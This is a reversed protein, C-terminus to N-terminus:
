SFGLYSSSGSSNQVWTAGSNTSTYIGPLDGVAVLKSGDASSAVCTWRASPASTQTWTQALADPLIALLAAMAMTSVLQRLRKMGLELHACATFASAVTRRKRM